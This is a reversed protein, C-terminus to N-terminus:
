CEYRTQNAHGNMAHNVKLENVDFIGINHYVWYSIKRKFRNFQWRMMMTSYTNTHTHETHTTYTNHKLATITVTIYIHTPENYMYAHM